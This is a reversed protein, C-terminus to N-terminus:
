AVAALKPRRPAEVSPGSGGLLVEVQVGGRGGLTMLKPAVRDRFIPFLTPDFLTGQDGEMIALAASHDFGARYPRDTTLADYVDAITLLRASYPIAEGKLCDPYGTGDFREHHHRIMPRVDWAFEVGELMEVGIVPHRSMLRWEAEDLAGKKNLVEDPVGVKGVDHLLAGMRFWTLESESMGAEAAILCALHAVRSSHGQTYADKSEISAGWNRTIELFVDELATIRTEADALERRARLRRFIAHAENLCLLTERNRGLERFVGGQELVVDALVKADQRDRAVTAARGLVDVALDPKGLRAHASGTVLLVEAMWRDDGTSQMLDRAEDCAALAQVVQGRRLMLRARNAQVVILHHRDSRQACVERARTLTTEAGADDQLEIQLRGINNLIPGVYHTLGLAEYGALSFRFRRLARRLDGRISAVSGLNQDAMAKLKRDGIRSALARVRRFLATAEDLDGLNFLTGARTNLVSALGRLDEAAEAAAEAVELCDLAAEPDGDNAHTWAIWRFLSGALATKGSGGLLRLANEYHDRAQEPLGSGDAERGARIHEAALEPVGELDLEAVTRM